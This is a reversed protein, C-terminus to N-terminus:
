NPCTSVVEGGGGDGCSCGYGLGGVVAAHVLGSVPSRGGARVNAATRALAGTAPLCGFAACAINAM